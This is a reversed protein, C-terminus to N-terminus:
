KEKSPKPTKITLLDFLAFLLGGTIIWNQNQVLTAYVAQSEGQLVLAGGLPELLFAVALLAFVTAGIGRQIKKSYIPGSFLLLFAPLLILAASVISQMPPAVVQLGAQQIYPTLPAAWLSSLTAGAALALGLAGFRRKTFYVAAFLVAVFVSIVVIVNM